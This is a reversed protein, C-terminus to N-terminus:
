GRSYIGAGRRPAVLLCKQNGATGVDDDDSASGCPGGYRRNKGLLAAANFEEFAFVKGAKMYAFRENGFSVPDELPEVHQGLHLLAVEHLLVADLKDARLSAEGRGEIEPVVLRM